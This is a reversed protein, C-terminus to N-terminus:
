SNFYYKEFKKNKLNKIIKKLYLKSFGIYLIISFIMILILLIFINTRFNFQYFDFWRISYFSITLSLDGNNSVEQSQGSQRGQNVRAKKMDIQMYFMEFFEKELFIDCSYMSKNYIYQYNSATKNSCTRVNYLKARDDFYIDFNLIVESSHDMKFLQSSSVSITQNSEFAQNESEFQFSIMFDIQKQLDEKKRCKEVNKCLTSKVQQWLDSGKENEVNNFVFIKEYKNAM